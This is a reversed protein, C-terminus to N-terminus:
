RKRATASGFLRQKLAVLSPTVRAIASLAKPERMSAIRRCRTM